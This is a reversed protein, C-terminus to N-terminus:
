LNTRLTATAQATADHETRRGDSAAATAPSPAIPASRIITDQAWRESFGALFSLGGYFHAATETDVALPLLSGAVLVYLAVGFIAGVLPRFMGALLTVVGGQHVDVSLQQGRAIRVMVSTTAGVGGGVVCVTLLQKLDAPLGLLWTVAIPLAVFAAGLPLGLLYNRLTKHIADREVYTEIRDLEANAIKAAEELEETGAGKHVAVDLTGLLMVTVTFLMEAVLVRTRESITSGSACETRRALWLTRWLAAVFPPNRMAVDRRDIWLWLRRGSHSGQETLFACARSYKAVFSNCIPGNSEEFTRRLRLLADSDGCKYADALKPLMAMGPLLETDAGANRTESGTCSVNAETKATLQRADAGPEEGNM